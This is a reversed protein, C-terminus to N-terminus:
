YAALTPELWHGLLVCGFASLLPLVRVNLPDPLDRPKLFHSIPDRILSKLQCSVGSPRSSVHGRGSRAAGANDAPEPYGM